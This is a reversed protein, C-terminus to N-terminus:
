FQFEVQASTPPVALGAGAEDLFLKMEAQTKPREFITCLNVEGLHAVRENLSEPKIRLELFEHYTVGSAFMGGDAYRIRLLRVWEEVTPDSPEFIIKPGLRFVKGNLRGEKGEYSYPVTEPGRYESPLILPYCDCASHIARSFHGGGNTYLRGEHAFSQLKPFTQGCYAASIDGKPQRWLGCAFRRWETIIRM